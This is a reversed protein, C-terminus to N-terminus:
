IKLEYLKKTISESLHQPSSWTHKMTVLKLDLMAPKAINTWIGKKNAAQILLFHLQRNSLFIGGEKKILAVNCKDSKRLEFEILTFWNNNHCIDAAIVQRRCKSASDLYSWQRANAPKTLPIVETFEDLTRIKAQFGGKQNLYTIASEFTEFSAPIAQRRTRIPAVQGTGTNSSNHAGQGTGLQESPTEKSPIALKSMYECQEKEPKDAKKGTIALFRDTPLAISEKSCNRNPEEESHLPKKGDSDKNAPKSFAPKKDEPPRDTEENARINSNDRDLTLNTFPFPGTCHDISLVLHRWNNEGLSQIKKTRVKLNTTDTFPFQSEVYVQARNLAQKMMLDHPQTAGAWAEKSNLIRGLVWGDEDSYHKRIGLICRSEEPISGSKEPNIVASIDHKLNGSFITHAMDTSVAYYFRILELMPIIIGFPDGEWTIAILKTNLGAGGFRYYHFPILRQGNVEHSASIVQTTESSVLLNHFTDVTGAKSSQCIGNLWISGITVLPLQGIGVRITKQEKNIVSKVSALQNPAADILHEEILPSIIIQFFPETPVNPNREIAGFWDIRWYRNDAPFEKIRPIGQSM